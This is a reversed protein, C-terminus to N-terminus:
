HPGAREAHLSGSRGHGRGGQDEAEWIELHLLPLGEVMPRAASCGMRLGSPMTQPERHEM